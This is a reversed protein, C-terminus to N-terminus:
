NGLGIRLKELTKANYENKTRWRGTALPVFEVGPASPPTSPKAQQNVVLYKTGGRNDPGQLSQFKPAQTPSPKIEGSLSATARPGGGEKEIQRQRSVQELIWRNKDKSVPIVNGKEDTVKNNEFDFNVKMYEGQKNQVNYTKSTTKPVVPEQPEVEQNQGSLDVEPADQREMEKNVVTVKGGGRFFKSAYPQPNMHGTLVGGNWGTGLEFHLHPGESAGTNGLTGIVPANGQSDPELKQGKRVNISDLHGYLTHLGDDHKVVVFQGWGANKNNPNQWGAFVVTGPQIVSIPAGVRSFPGGSYDVGNHTPRNSTRFGSYVYASPDEGGKVSLADGIDIEPADTPNIKGSIAKILSNIPDQLFGLLKDVFSEKKIGYEEDRELVKKEEEKKKLSPGITPFNGGVPTQAIVNPVDFTKMLPGAMQRILPAVSAGAPGMGGVFNMTAAVMAGGIDNFPNLKDKDLVLETGHLIATGPEVDKTGQEYGEAGTFTDSIKSGAFGGGIGGLIGGLVAGIAAGPAAGVGGFFAGIFAGLAAGGKAGAAGGAAAGALGGGVGSLAQVDSQGAKKRESYELGAFAYKLPGAARGVRGLGKIKNLANVAKRTQGPMRRALAGGVRSTVAKTARSKLMDPTKQLKRLRRRMNRLRKPSKRYLKKAFKSRLYKLIFNGGKGDTKINGSVDVYEFTRAADRKEELAREAAANEAEEALQKAKENQLNFAQLIADLKSVILSDQNEVTDLASILVQTNALILNNQNQISDNISSLEGQIKLFNSKMFEFIEKNTKYSSPKSTARERKKNNIVQELEERISDPIDSLDVEQQANDAEELVEAATEAQEKVEETDNEEEDRISDLFSDDIISEDEDYEEEYDDQIPFEFPGDYIPPVVVPNEDPYAKVLELIYEKIRDRYERLEEYDDYSNLGTVAFIWERVAEKTGTSKQNDGKSFKSYYIARDIDSKFELDYLGTQGWMYRPQIHQLEPYLKPHNVNRVPKKEIELVPKEEVTPTPEQVPATQKSESADSLGDSADSLGYFIKLKRQISYFAASSKGTIIESDIDDYYEPLDTISLWTDRSASIRKAKDIGETTHPLVGYSILHGELIERYFDNRIKKIASLPIEGKSLKFDNM